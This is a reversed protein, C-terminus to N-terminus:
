LGITLWDRKQQMSWSRPLYSPCKTVNRMELSYLHTLINQSQLIAFTYPATFIHPKLTIIVFIFDSSQSADATLLFCNICKRLGSMTFKLSKDTSLSMDLKEKERVLKAIHCLRPSFWFVSFKILSLLCHKMIVQILTERVPMVKRTYLIKSFLLLWLM